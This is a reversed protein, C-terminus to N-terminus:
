VVGKYDEEKWEWLGQHFTIELITKQLRTFVADSFEEYNDCKPYSFGGKLKGHEYISAGDEDFVTSCDFNYLKRKEHQLKEWMDCWLSTLFANCVVTICM